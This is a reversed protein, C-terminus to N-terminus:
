IKSLSDYIQLNYSIYLKLLKQIYIPYDYLCKEQIRKLKLM